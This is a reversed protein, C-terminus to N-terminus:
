NDSKKFVVRLTVKSDVKRNDRIAPTWKPGNLVIEKALEFFKEDADNLNVIDQIEGSSDLSLRLKVVVKDTEYDAPLVAKEKLYVKYETIGDVPTAASNLPEDNIITTSGTVSEKKQTGYGIVVVESLGVVDDTLKIINDSDKQPHFEASEMGIFSAVVPNSDNELQMQFNGEIDTITGNSTGKEVVSVGPLPLGDSDSLIQGRIINDKTTASKSLLVPAPQTQALEIEKQKEILKLETNQKLDEEATQIPTTEAIAENEALDDVIIEDETIITQPEEIEINQEEAPQQIRSDATAETEKTVEVKTNVEPEDQPVIKEEPESHEEEMKETKVESVKDIPHDHNLQMWIIGSTILLLITAAAAFYPISRNRKKNAIKKSLDNLDYEFKSSSVSEYGDMAEAEFPYKQLEKEFANREIDTMENALYRRFLEKDIHNKNSSM